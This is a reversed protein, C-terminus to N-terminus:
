GMEVEFVSAACRASISNNVLVELHHTVCFVLINFQQLVSLSYFVYVAQTLGLLKHQM